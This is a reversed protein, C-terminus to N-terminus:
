QKYILYLLHVMLKFISYIFLKQDTFIRKIRSFGREIQKKHIIRALNTGIPSLTTFLLPKQHLKKKSM